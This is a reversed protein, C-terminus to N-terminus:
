RVTTASTTFVGPPKALLPRPSPATGSPTAPPLVTSSEFSAKSSTASTPSIEGISGTISFRFPSARWFPSPSNQAMDPRGWPGYATFFRLGTTPLGYLHSYTHVILENSKKSAVYLSFPHDVISDAKIQFGIVSRKKGFEVALPLGVYGLGIIALISKKLNM